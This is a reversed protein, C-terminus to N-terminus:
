SDAAWKLVISERKIQLVKHRAQTNPSNKVGRWGRIKRVFMQMRLSLVEERRQHNTKYLLISLPEEFLRCV